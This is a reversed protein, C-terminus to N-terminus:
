GSQSAAAWRRMRPPGVLSVVALPVVMLLMAVRPSILDALAGSVPASIPWMGVFALTWLGMVRGRMDERVEQQIGTTWTINGATFGVGTLPLIALAVAFSPAFAFLVLGGALLLGAPMLWAFRASEHGRFARTVALAGVIAGLGFASMLLGADSVRVGFVDRTFTPGLVVFCNMALAISSMAALMLRLRRDRWVYALAERISGQGKPADELRDQVARPRILVLAVILGVFSLSNLGFSLGFGLTAIITAALAPGLVRGVNYTIANLGIAQGMQSPDVLSPLLAQMVPLSIAFQVGVLLAVVVVAGVSARGTAALVALTGTAVLALVQTAILVRRRDFRDALRGGPLSLFWVPLFLAATTAGVVFSSGSLEKVLVGQAALQLWNGTNSILQGIFFLRFNRNGFPGGRPEASGRVETPAAHVDEAAEM